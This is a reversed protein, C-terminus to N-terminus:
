GTSHCRGPVYAREWVRVLSRSSSIRRSREPHHALCLRAHRISSLEIMNIAQEVHLPGLPALRLRPSCIRSGCRFHTRNPRTLRFTDTALKGDKTFGTVAPSAVLTRLRHVSRPTLSCRASCSMCLFRPSGSQHAKAWRERRIFLVPSPWPQFDSAGM